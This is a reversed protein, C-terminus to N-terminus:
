CARRFLVQPASPRYHLPPVVATPASWSLTDGGGGGGRGVCVNQAVAICKHVGVCYAFLERSSTVSPKAMYMCTYVTQAPRPPLCIYFPRAVVGDVREIGGGASCLVQALPYGNLWTVECAAIEDM